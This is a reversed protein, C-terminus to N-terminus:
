KPDVKELDVVAIIGDRWENPKPFSAYRAVGDKLERIVLLTADSMVPRTSKIRVINGVQFDTV